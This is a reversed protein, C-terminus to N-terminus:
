AGLRYGLRGPLHALADDLRRARRGADEAADRRLTARNIAFAGITRLPEPPFRKPEFGVLPLRTLEDEVGLARRALIQGALQCPGVGNGTYGAAAHVNGPPLTLVFPLHAGCVDIPGGWASELAVDRFAPFLRRFQTAVEAVCRADWDFAPGIGPALAPQMGGTGFAIRGDPTTRLYNLAARFNWVGEGGTWGIEALRDPAPETIVMYTGRVALRRRFPQEAALWANAALIAVPATVSGAPTRAVAPPGASFRVVPSGEHVRAGQALVIRRLGRALRAPQVVAGRPVLVGGGRHPLRIRRAVEDPALEVVTDPVGLRGAAAVLDRWRGEQAPATAIGLDGAFTHWADVGHRECWDGVEAVSEDAARALELAREDGFLAALSDLSSWFGNLFGGNRGSPGGGCIDRELVVVRLGPERELLRHATWLGTYGGGVIVADAEVEGALPPCTEGPDAALAEELWWSRRAAPPAERASM